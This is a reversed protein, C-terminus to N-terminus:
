LLIPAAPYWTLLRREQLQPELGAGCPLRVIDNQRAKKSTTISGAGAKACGDGFSGCTGNRWASTSPM